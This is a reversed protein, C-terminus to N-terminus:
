SRSLVEACNCVDTIENLPAPFKRGLGLEICIPSFIGKLDAANHLLLEVPMKALTAMEPNLRCVGDSRIM